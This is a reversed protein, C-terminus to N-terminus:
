FDPASELLLLKVTAARREVNTSIAFVSSFVSRSSVEASIMRSNRPGNGSSSGSMTSSFPWYSGRRLATTDGSCRSATCATSRSRRASGFPVGFQQVDREEGAVAAEGTGGAV